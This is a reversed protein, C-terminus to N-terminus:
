KAALIWFAPSPARAPGCRTDRRNVHLWPAVRQWGFAMVASFPPRSFSVGDAVEYLRDLPGIVNGAVKPSAAAWNTGFSTRSASHGLGVGHRFSVAFIKRELLRRWGTSLSGQRNPKWFCWPADGVYASLGISFGPLHHPLQDNFAFSSPPRPDPRPTWQRLERRIPIAPRM